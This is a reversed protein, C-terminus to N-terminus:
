FRAPVLARRKKNFRYRYEQLHREQGHISEETSVLCDFEGLESADFRMQGIANLDLLEVPLRWGDITPLAAAIDAFARCRDDYAGETSDGFAIGEPIMNLIEKWLADLKCLNAEVAEFQQLAKSLTSM